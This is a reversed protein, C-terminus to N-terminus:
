SSYFIFCLISDRDYVACTCSLIFPWFGKNMDYKKSLHRELVKHPGTYPRELPKKVKKVRKFVHTCTDLEKYYFPKVEPPTKKTKHDVPIPRLQKLYRQYENVFPKPEVQPYTDASFDGPIRLTQGYLMDAPSVGTDLRIATRMGLLVTPLAYYWDTITEIVCMLAAKLRRHWIEIM